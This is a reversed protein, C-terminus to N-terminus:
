SSHFPKGCRTAPKQTKWSRALGKGSTLIQKQLILAPVLVSQFSLESSGPWRTTIWRQSFLSPARAAQSTQSGLGVTDRLIVFISSGTRTLLMQPQSLANRHYFVSLHSGGGPGGVHNNNQWSMWLSGIMLRGMGFSGLQHECASVIFFLFSSLFFFFIQLVWFVLPMLGDLCCLYIVFETLLLKNWMMCKFFFFLFSVCVYSQNGRGQNEKFTNALM